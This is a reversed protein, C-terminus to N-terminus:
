IESIKVKNEQSISFFILPYRWFINGEFPYPRTCRGDHSGPVVVANGFGLTLLFSTPDLYTFVPM